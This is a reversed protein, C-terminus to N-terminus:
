FHFTRWPREGFIERMDLYTFPYLSFSDVLSTLGGTIDENSIPFGEGTGFQKGGKFLVVGGIDLLDGVACNGEMWIIDVIM